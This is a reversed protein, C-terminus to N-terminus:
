HRHPLIVVGNSVQVLKPDKRKGTITDGVNRCLM